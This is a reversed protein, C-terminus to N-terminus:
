VEVNELPTFEGTQPNLQGQGYKDALSKFTDQEQQLLRNFEEVLQNEAQSVNAVMTQLRLQELRVQGLKVTIETRRNQITRIAGLEDDTIKGAENVQGAKSLDIVNDKIEKDTAM